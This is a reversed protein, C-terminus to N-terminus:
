QCSVMLNSISVSDGSLTSNLSVSYNFTLTFLDSGGLYHYFAPKTPDNQCYQKELSGSYLDFTTEKSIKDVSVDGNSDSELVYVDITVKELICTTGNTSLGIGTEFSAHHIDQYLVGDESETSPFAVDRTIFDGEIMSGPTSYVALRFNISALTMVHYSKNNDDVYSLVRAMEKLPRENLKNTYEFTASVKMLDNETVNDYWTGTAADRNSRESYYSTFSVVKYNEVKIIMQTDSENILERYGSGGQVETVSKTQSSYVIDYKGNGVKYYNYSYNGLGLIQYILGRVQSIRSINNTFQPNNGYSMPISIHPNSYKIIGGGNPTEQHYSFLSYVPSSDGDQTSIMWFNDGTTPSVLDETVGYAYRHTKSNQVFSISNSYFTIDGTGSSTENALESTESQQTDIHIKSLSDFGEDISKNLKTVEDNSLKETYKLESNFAVNVANNEGCSALLLPAALLLILSKKM